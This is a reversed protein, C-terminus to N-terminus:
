RLQAYIRHMQATLHKPAFHRRVHRQAKRGLATRLKPSGCLRVIAKRLATPNGAPVLVATGPAVIDPIGGIRTAILAKGAAMAEVAVRGFPEPWRSPFLVIDARQYLRPLASDPVPAHFQIRDDAVRAAMHQLPGGGYIDCRWNGPLDALATLLDPLGKAVSLTGFFLLRVPGRRAIHRKVFRPLDIINHLVSIKARPVGIAALRERLFRSIAVVQDFQPLLRKLNFYRAYIASLTVPNYSILPTNRIKGIEGCDRLCPVFTRFDCRITCLSKGHYLLDGKPCAFLLSNVHTLFPIRAARRLVVAPITTMNFCHVAAFREAAILKRVERLLSSRFRLARHVNSLLSHPSGTRLTRHVRVGKEKRVAPIGRVASTLVTIRYGVRVMNEALLKCSLEGGGHVAPPYYESLFLIHPKAPM